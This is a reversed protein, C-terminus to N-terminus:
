DHYSFLEEDLKYKKLADATLLSKKELIPSIAAIKSEDIRVRSVVEIDISTEYHSGPNESICEKSMNENPNIILVKRDFFDNLYRHFINQSYGYHTCCLAAFLKDNGNLRLKEGSEKIYSSILFDVKASQPNKEIEGALKDCPQVIIRDASIGMLLLAKRHADSEITTPTGLILVKSNEHKKLKEFIANVGFDIIDVVEIATSCSFETEPYLVSLTNCALLIKDPKFKLMGQLASNFVKAKAVQSPMSNYPRNLSPWANFYVIKIKSFRSVKNLKDELGAVISLGGLGSDTVVLSLEKNM